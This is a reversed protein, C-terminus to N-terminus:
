PSDFYRQMISSSGRFTPHIPAACFAGDVVGGVMIVKMNTTKSEPVM